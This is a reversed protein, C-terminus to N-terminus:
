EAHYDATHHSISAAGGSISVFYEDLLNKISEHNDYATTNKIGEINAHSHVLLRTCEVLGNHAASIVLDKNALNLGHDILVKLVKAHGLVVVTGGIDFKQDNIDVCSSPDELMQLVGVADGECCLTNLRDMDQEYSM